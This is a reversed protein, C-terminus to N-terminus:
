ASKKEQRKRARYRARANRNSCERSCYKSGVRVPKSCSHWECIAVAPAAPAKPESVVPAAKIQEAKPRVVNGDYFPQQSKCGAYYCSKTAKPLRVSCMHLPCVWTDEDYWYPERRRANM